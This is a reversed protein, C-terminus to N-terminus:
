ILKASFLNLLGINGDSSYCNKMCSARYKWNDASASSGNNSLGYKFCFAWGLWLLGGPCFLQLLMIVIQEYLNKNWPPWFLIFLNITKGKQFVKIVYPWIGLLTLVTLWFRDYAKCSNLGVYIQGNRKSILACLEPSMNIVAHKYDEKKTKIFCLEFTCGRNVLQKIDISKEVISAVIEGDPLSVPIGIVTWKRNWSGLSLCWFNLSVSELFPVIHENQTGM